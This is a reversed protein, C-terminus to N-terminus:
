EELYTTIEPPGDKLIEKFDLLIEIFEDLRKEGVKDILLGVKCRIDAGIEAAVKRGQDSLTVVTMRGDSVDKGKIILQKAEMKRLIVAVRATSVKMHESIEGATVCRDSHFLYKLVAGTGAQTENMSKFFDMPRAEMFRNMLREIQEKTAM